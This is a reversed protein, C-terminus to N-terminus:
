IFKKQEYAKQLTFTFNCFKGYESSVWISEGHADIIAKVIFLGLGVGTKDLGRSRDSKYFRDFVFPLDDPPIGEGTNYVSILAEKENQYIKIKVLGKEPTFKIANELLNYLIQHIADSDACVNIKAEEDGCDFEIEIQKGDIKPGLSILVLRARECIDFNTKNFKREGAQIRSIDLLSSVLRSLRQIEASVIRLYYEHKDNPIAGGLIGDVFGGITTMPTRLDHSVNSLFTRQTEENIALAEAMKNFASALEGIEDRNTTAPIRADFHGAAFSKAARSMSRVPAIIKETIFYLIVMSAVLVWLCSLIILVIVQNVSNHASASCFFLFGALEGTKSYLVQAVIIHRSSFVGDMTQFWGFEGSLVSKTINAPIHDELLIGRSIPSAAAIDGNQDAVIVFSEETLEAYLSLEGSFSEEEAQAFGLLSDHGSGSFITEINQKALKAANYMSIRKEYISYQVIASSIVAALITFSITIIALFVLIYKAFVSKIM